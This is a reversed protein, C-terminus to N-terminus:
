RWVLRVETAGDACRFEGGTRLATAMARWLEETLVMTIGDEFLGITNKATGSGIVANWLCIKNGSSGPPRTAFRLRQGPRWVFWGDADVAPDARIAFVKRVPAAAVLEACAGLSTRPVSITVHHDIGSGTITLGEIRAHPVRASLSEADAPYVVTARRPDFFPPFPFYRVAAGIRALVRYVGAAYALKAEDPRLMVGVLTGSPYWPSAPNNEAYAIGGVVSPFPEPPGFVTVDGPGVVQGRAALKHFDAFITAMTAQATEAEATTHVRLGLGIERQGVTRLGESICVLVDAQEGFVWRHLESRMRLDPPLVDQVSQVLKPRGTAPNAADDDPSIVEFLEDPVGLFRGSEKAAQGWAKPIEPFTEPEQGWLNFEVALAIPAKVDIAPVEALRNELKSLVEAPIEGDVAECWMRSQKGPRLEIAVFLGKATPREANEWFATTEKVVSMTYDALLVEYDAFKSPDDGLRPALEYIPVYSRWQKLEIVKKGQRSLARWRRM